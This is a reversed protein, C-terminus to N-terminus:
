AGNQHHFRPTLMLAVTFLAMAGQGLIAREQWYFAELPETFRWFPLERPCRFLPIERSEELKGTLSQM